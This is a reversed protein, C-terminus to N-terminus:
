KYWLLTFFGDKFSGFLINNNININLMMFYNILLIIVNVWFLFSIIYSIPSTYLLTFKGIIFSVHYFVYFKTM